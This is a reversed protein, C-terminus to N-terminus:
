ENQKGGKLIIQLWLRIGAANLCLFLASGSQDNGSDIGGAAPKCNGTFM